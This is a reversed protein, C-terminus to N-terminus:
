LPAQAGLPPANGGSRREVACAFIMFLLSSDGALPCPPRQVGPMREPSSQPSNKDTVFIGRQSCLLAPPEWGIHLTRRACNRTVTHKTTPQFNRPLYSRIHLGITMWILKHKRTYWLSALM